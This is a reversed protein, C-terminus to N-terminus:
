MLASQLAYTSEAAASETFRASQERLGPQPSRLRSGQLREALVQPEQKGPYTPVSPSALVKQPGAWDDFPRPAAQEEFEEHTLL